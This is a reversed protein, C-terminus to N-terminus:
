HSKVLQKVTIEDDQTIKVLYVGQEYRSLDLSIQNVGENIMLIKDEVVRGQIDILQFTGEGSDESSFRLMASDSTPNPYVSLEIDELLENGEKVLTTNNAPATAIRAGGANFATITIEDIYVDDANASADCQFRFQANTSFNYNSADITVTTVYFNNNSFDVGSVWSAVTQWASGDYFRLWFDEGNEMSRPYFYFEVEILDFGTVDYGSNSYFSSQSGSNDQIGGASSGAWAYNGGNYLYADSGGDAYSGWGSEFNDYALVLENPTSVQQGTVSIFGSTTTAGDNDTAVASIAFNGVGIIFSGTYPANTDTGISVGDVFFEVSTVSGDGDSANASISVNDGDTYTAGNSPSTISVSPAVNPTTATIGVISSTTIAGDDDTAVATIDSPGDAVNFSALYPASTDTGISAGNVFFEVSVVSGDSDSASAAVNVLDGTTYSTGNTPATISVSPAVNPTSGTNMTHSGLDTSTDQGYSTWESTTYTANPSNINANRVLTVDQGFTAANNFVGIADILVDNKFLGLADNGNFTLESNGGSYDAQALISANASSNAVVYVDGDALSGALSLGTSWSGVGNSQKKIVYASLDVSAGTFNAIELAKNFSSGEIYESFLLDSANGSGGGGTITIDFSQIDSDTGDTVQIQVSYAGATSPTGNLDATGDNNDVLSLWTPISSATISLAAAGGGTTISYSYGVGVQGDTVATSTFFPPNSVPGGSMTHSGLHDFTDQSYTTWESITYTVNPSNVEANRVLTVDQGFTAASNFVGIADILVDNKFLGLADNGNFTLEGIGGSYDAQALITASASSNAVVYVDGDALSGTLSLGTSWSGAGNTQKKIVYASLDVSAGTFNAVEIAKNFSSGEIYESFLLDTASGSGGGNTTITIDFSQTDSDTGDTINLVVSYTGSTGPTGSLSATGDGNDTLTLWSPVTSGTITVAAAGGGSTVNYQYASGVSGSTVPTSTFFPATSPTGSWILAVFEPHDIFPNRNNQYSYVIDNRNREADDVPDQQHWLLLDSMRGHLPSKDTNSLIQDTLELDPEGADGEYRTAMYFIMRAVDGRVEARPKWVYESSSTYSGTPGNYSGSADVYPDNASEAFSRNNRASNTSIDAARLHHVDTGAGQTTGFDGRSKAWVHERNWGDGSNYEAAADMSFGSYLGIVNNANNPDRDAEKLIDWVDTSSSSYPYTTHGKIINNLAAKLQDGSLGDTGDYYGQPIQAFLIGGLFYCLVILLSKKM